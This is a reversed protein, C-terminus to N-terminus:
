LRAAPRGRDRARKLSLDSVPPGPDAWVGAPKGAGANEPRGPAGDQEWRELSPPVPSNGSALEAGRCNLFLNREGSRWFLYGTHEEGAKQPCKSTNDPSLREREQSPNTDATPSLNGREGRGKGSLSVGHGNPDCAGRGDRHSREWGVGM